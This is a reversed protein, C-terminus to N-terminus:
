PIQLTGVYHHRGDVTREYTYNDPPHVNWSVFHDDIGDVITTVFSGYARLTPRTQTHALEYRCRAEREVAELSVVMRLDDRLEATFGSQTDTLLARGFTDIRDSASNPVHNM